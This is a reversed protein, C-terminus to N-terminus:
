GTPELRPMDLINQRRAIVRVSPNFHQLVFPFSIQDRFTYDQVEHWWTQMLGHVVPSRADLIFQDCHFLGADDKFGMKEMHALADEMDQKGNLYGRLTCQYEAPAIELRVSKRDEHAKVTLAHGSLSDRIRDALHPEQCAVQISDADCWFIIDVGAAQPLLFMNMKYFKAQMNNKVMQHSIRGFSHRGSTFLDKHTKQMNLHYPTLDVIWGNAAKVPTDTYMVCSMGQPCRPMEKRHGRGGYSASVMTVEAAEADDKFPQLKTGQGEGTKRKANCSCPMSVAIILALTIM